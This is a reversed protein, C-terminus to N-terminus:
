PRSSPEYPCHSSMRVVVGGHEFEEAPFRINMAGDLVNAFRSNAASHM